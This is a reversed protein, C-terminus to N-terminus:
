EIYGLGRLRDEVDAYNESEDEDEGDGKKTGSTTYEATEVPNRAPGSDPDFVADLVTGDANAPVPKGMSQLVTPAVDVVSADTVDAGPEVDPGLALFIGEPRHNATMAGPEVFVDDALATTKAYGPRAEVVLDPSEPDRPFLDDGDFVDLVRDGTEPDTLSELDASVERKVDDVEGVPVTGQDFREEDNVYVNGTAHVFATTEDYAVDYLQHEGPIAGAATDVVSKPLRDLLTAADLGVSGLADLVRDKTLGMADFVGRTGSEEKRTLHGSRELAAGVSVLKSIPGFGHDSVVFLNADRDAAYSCVEGLVDDLYRYHDLLVDEEWVLHQLRDPATYVFFFLRWDDTEMLLRMLKRRAEVLATLEEVFEDRKGHYEAWNLGIRYEPIEGTLTEVFEPPHTATGDLTPTMMGTVLTGDIETAPYTMPVNGVVAPSAVNWLSPRRVDGSTNMEHTYSRTLRRFAYVGHQDPWVGTAISPWALATTAPTTSRLPGTAGEEFFRAFTPLEGDAVWEEILGWPVGDLGLVFADRDATM